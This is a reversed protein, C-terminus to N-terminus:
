NSETMFINHKIAKVAHKAPRVAALSILLCKEANSRKGMWPCDVSYFSQKQKKYLNRETRVSKM